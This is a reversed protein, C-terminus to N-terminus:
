NKIIQTIFREGNTGTLSLRYTGNALTNNLPLIKFTTGGTHYVPTQYVHQGLSNYLILTYTGKGINNLQLGITSGTVPNPNISISTPLGAITVKVVASYKTLGTKDFAKIRYFNNGIEPSVDFWNYNVPTISNGLAATTNQKSFQIGDASREVIFKDNNIETATTWSIKVKESLKDASFKVLDIPLADDIEYVEINDLDITATGSSFTMKLDALTKTTTTASVDNFIKTTGAWLDYKDDAVAETTGDQAFYNKSGGSNNVVWTINQAGSLNSSNTLSASAFQGIEFNNFASIVTSYVKFLPVLQVVVVSVSLDVM